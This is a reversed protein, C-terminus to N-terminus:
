YPYYYYPRPAYYYTPPPAYYYAPPGVNIGFRFGVDALAPTAVAAGALALGSALLLSRTLNRMIM